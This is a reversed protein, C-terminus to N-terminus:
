SANKRYKMYTLNCLFSTINMFCSTTADLVNWSFINGTKLQKQFGYYCIQSIEWEKLKENSFYLGNTNYRAPYISSM